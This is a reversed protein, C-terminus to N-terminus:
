EGKRQFGHQSSSGPARETCQKYWRTHRRDCKKSPTSRRQARTQEVSEQSDRERGGKVEVARLSAVQYTENTRRRDHGVGSQSQMGKRHHFGGQREELPECVQPFAALTAAVYRQLGPRPRQCERTPVSM